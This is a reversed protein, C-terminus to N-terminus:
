RSIGTASLRFFSMIERSTTSCDQLQVEMGQIGLQGGTVSEKVPQIDKFRTYIQLTHGQLLSAHQKVTPETKMCDNEDNVCM